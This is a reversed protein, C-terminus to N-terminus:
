IFQPITDINILDGNKPLTGNFEFQRFEPRKLQAKPTHKHVCRAIM